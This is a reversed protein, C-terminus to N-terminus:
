IKQRLEVPLLELALTQLEPTTHLEFAKMLIEFNLLTGTSLSRLRAANSLEVCKQVQPYASEFDRARALALALSVRRDWSLYRDGKEALRAKVQALIKEASADDHRAASVQARACLAGMDRPFRELDDAAAAALELLNMEAFYEAVRSLAVVDEQEDVIEFLAVAYDEMGARRPFQYAVPRLWPPLRWQRLAEIFTGAEKNERSAILDDLTTDWTPLVLHTVGHRQLLALAEPFSGPAAIRIALARSEKGDTAPSNLVRVESYFSLSASVDPAAWVMIKSPDDSRRQLWRALDRELMSNVESVPVKKPDRWATPLGKSAGLALGAALAVLAFPRLAKGAKNTWSYAAGRRVRALVFLGVVGISLWGVDRLVRPDPAGPQFYNTLPYFSGGGVAILTAAIPGFSRWAVATAVLLALFVLLADGYVAVTEVARGPTQDFISHQGRALAALWAGYIRPISGIRLKSEDKANTKGVSFKSGAIRKQTKVIWDMSESRHGPVILVRTGDSYGSVSKPDAPPPNSDIRSVFDVQRVRGAFVACFVLGALGILLGCILPTFPPSLRM